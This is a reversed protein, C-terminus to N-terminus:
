QQIEAIKVPTIGVQKLLANLTNLAETEGPNAIHVQYLASVADIWIGSQAYILARDADSRATAIKQNLDPSPHVREIWARAYINESPRKDSCILAVTWRYEKGVALEPINAPVELKVIGPKDAKVQQTFIPKPKGPEVLTFVMSATTGNSLHWLFTPYASVTQAIHDNPTLLNLSVPISNTCGRAGSGETRQPRGRDTPPVYQAIEVANAVTEDSKISFDNSLSINVPGNLVTLVSIVSGLAIRMMSSVRNFKNM